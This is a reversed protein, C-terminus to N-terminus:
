REIIYRKKTTKIKDPYKIFAYLVAFINYFIFLISFIICFLYEMSYFMFCIIPLFILDVYFLPLLISTKTITLIKVM